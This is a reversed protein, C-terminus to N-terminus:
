SCWKCGQWHYSRLIYMPINEFFGFESQHSWLMWLNQQYIGWHLNIVKCWPYEHSKHLLYQRFHFHSLTMMQRATKSHIKRFSGRKVMYCIVVVRHNECVVMKCFKSSMWGWLIVFRRTSGSCADVSSIDRVSSIKKVMFLIGKM